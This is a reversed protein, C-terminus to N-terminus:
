CVESHNPQGKPYLLLMEVPDGDYFHYIMDGTVRHMVSCTDPELLYYIASCLTRTEDKASGTSTGWPVKLASEYTGAFYGGEAANPQLRLRDIVQRVTLMPTIRNRMRRRSM